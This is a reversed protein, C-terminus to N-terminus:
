EQEMRTAKEKVHPRGGRVGVGAGGGGVRTNVKQVRGRSGIRKGSLRKWDPAM